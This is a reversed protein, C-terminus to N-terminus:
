EKPGEFWDEHMKELALQIYHGAKLLDLDEQGPRQNKGFRSLYKNAQKVCDEASYDSVQDKGKDGYQPVTYNEVHELLMMCYTKLNRGRVSLVSNDREPFTSELLQREKKIDRDIADSSNFQDPYRLKLKDINGSFVEEFTTQLIRIAFACYWFQDGIEEKANVRDLPKGYFLFKKMMDLFEVAETTMGMAAHLLHISEENTLREILESDIDPVTRASEKLYTSPDM